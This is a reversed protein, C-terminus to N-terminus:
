LPDIRVFDGSTLMLPYDRVPIECIGTCDNGFDKLKEEPFAFADGTKLDILRFEGPLATHLSIYGEFTESLIPVPKWFVFGLSGDPRRFGGYVLEKMRTILNGARYFPEPSEIFPLACHTFEGRFVSALTQLTYYSPKPEYGEATTCRDNFAGRLVGFYGYDRCTSEDGAVGHLAEAMDMSSFYSTFMVDELLDHVLHRAMFRAQRDETWDMGRLAGAGDGRSSVGTEGQIFSIDPNYMRVMARLSQNRFAVSQEDINYAHYSFANLVKAAGTELVEKLWKVSSCCMAGGIIKAEPDATRAAAATDLIFTGYETGSVGTKWCWEGDPENWVEYWRIRGRFHSVAAKVYASWAAKEEPSHVPPIGVAGYVKKAAETYLDNGYCLCMWPELGRRLLNDVILDLWSFDYVGPTRETRQWGSQIRVRKVGIAAIKDYAKEPDFAARDLKEFGIGIATTSTEKASFAHVKGIKKLNGIM